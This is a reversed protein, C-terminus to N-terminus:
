RCHHCKTCTIVLENTKFQQLIQEVFELGVREIILPKEYKSEQNEDIFNPSEQVTLEESKM